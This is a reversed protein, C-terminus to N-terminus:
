LLDTSKAYYNNPALLLFQDQSITINFIHEISEINYLHFSGNLSYTFIYKNNPNNLHVERLKQAYISRHNSFISSGFLNSFTTFVEGILFPSSFIPLHGPPFIHYDGTENNIKYMQSVYIEDYALSYKGENLHVFKYNNTPLKIQKIQNGSEVDFYTVCGDDFLILRLGDLTQIIKYDSLVSYYDDSNSKMVTEKLNSIDLLSLKDSKIVCVKNHDLVKISCDKGISYKKTSNSTSIQTINLTNNELKLLYEGSNDIVGNGISELNLNLNDTFISQLGRYNIFINKSNPHWKIVIKDYGIASFKDYNKGFDITTKTHEDFIFTKTQTTGNQINYLMFQNGIAIAVFKGDPSIQASNISNGKLKVIAKKEGNKLNSLIIDSITEIILHNGDVSMCIPRGIEISIQNNEIYYFKSDKKVTPNGKDSYMESYFIAKELEHNISINLDGTFFEAPLKTLKFEHFNLSYLKADETFFYFYNGMLFGNMIKTISKKVNNNSYISDLKLDYIKFTGDLQSLYVQKNDKSASIYAIDDAIFKSKKNDLIEVFRSSSGSYGKDIGFTKNGLTIVNSIGFGVENQNTKYKYSQPKISRGNEVKFARIHKIKKNFLYSFEDFIFQDNQIHFNTNSCCSIFRQPLPKTWQVKGSFDMSSCTYIARGKKNQIYNVLLIIHQNAIVNYADFSHIIDLTQPNLLVNGCESFNNRGSNILIATSDHNWFLKKYTANIYVSKVISLTDKHTINVESYDKGLSKITLIDGNKNFTAYEANFTRLISGTKVNWLKCTLNDSTLLLKGSHNSTYHQIINTHRTQVVPHLTFKNQSIPKLCSLLVM